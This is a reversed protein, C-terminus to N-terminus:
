FEKKGLGIRLLNSERLLIAELDHALEDYAIDVTAQSRELAQNLILELKHRFIFEVEQAVIDVTTRGGFLDDIIYQVQLFPPILQKAQLPVM